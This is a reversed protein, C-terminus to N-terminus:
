AMETSRRVLAIASDLRGEVEGTVIATFQIIHADYGSLRQARRTQVIAAPWDDDLYISKSIMNIWPDSLTSDVALSRQMSSQVSDMYEQFPGWGRFAVVFYYTGLLGHAQAFGPDLALAARGYYASSDILM